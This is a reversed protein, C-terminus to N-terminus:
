AVRSVGAPLAPLSQNGPRTFVIQLDFLWRTRFLAECTALYYEWIRVFREDFGLARVRARAALFRERWRALTEAYHVGVDELHHVVLRSRRSM